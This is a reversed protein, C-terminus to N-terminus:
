SDFFRQYFFVINLAYYAFIKIWMGWPGAVRLAALPNFLSLVAAAVKAWRPLKFTEVEEGPTPKEPIGWPDALILHKVREPHTLTYSCALYGGFSHGLLIFEKLGVKKRWEEISQVYFMEAEAADAPFTPRSSRGFGLLDIAYVKQKQSIEDLNLAWFGVGAAFGHLLLMPTREGDNIDGETEITQIKTDDSIPVFYNKFSRKM